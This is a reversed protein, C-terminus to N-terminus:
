LLITFSNWKTWLVGLAGDVTVNIDDPLKKLVKQYIFQIIIKKMRYKYILVSFYYDSNSIDGRKSIIKEVLLQTQLIGPHSLLQAGAKPGAHSGPTRSQTGCWAGAHLKSRERGTNRGRERHREHIFLCFRLFYTSNLLKVM